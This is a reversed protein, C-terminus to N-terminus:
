KGKKSLDCPNIVYEQSLFKNIMSEFEEHSYDFNVVPINKQFVRTRIYGSYYHAEFLKSEVKKCKLKESQNRVRIHQVLYVNLLNGEILVIIYRNPLQKDPSIVRIFSKFITSFYKAGEKELLTNIEKKSHKKDQMTKYLVFCAYLLLSIGAIFALYVFPDQTM